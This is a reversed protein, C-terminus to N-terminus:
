HPEGMGCGCPGYLRALVTWLEMGDHLVDKRWTPDICAAIHEYLDGRCDSCLRAQGPDVLWVECGCGVCVDQRFWGHKRPLGAFYGRSQLERTTM